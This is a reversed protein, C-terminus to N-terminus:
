APSNSSDDIGGLFNRTPKTLRDDPHLTVLRSSLKPRAIKVTQTVAVNVM